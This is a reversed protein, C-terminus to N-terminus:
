RQVSRPSKQPRERPRTTCTASALIFSLYNQLPVKNYQLISPSMSKLKRELAIKRKAEESANKSASSSASESSGRSKSSSTSCDRVELCPNWQVLVTSRGTFSRRYCLLSLCTERKWAPSLRSSLCHFPRM